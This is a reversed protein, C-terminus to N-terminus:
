ESASLFDCHVGLVDSEYGDPLDPFPNSALVARKAARDFAPYGSSQEVGANVINGSATIQFFITTKLKSDGLTSYPNHFNQQLRRQIIEFYYPFEFEKGEVRIGGVGSVEEEEVVPETRRAVEVEKEKEEDVRKERTKIREVDVPPLPKISETERIQEKVDLAKLPTVTPFEMLKVTYVVTEFSPRDSRLSIIILMVVVLIHALASFQIARRM